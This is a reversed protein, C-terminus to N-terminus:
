SSSRSFVRRARSSSWFRASQELGVSSTGSVAIDIGAVFLRVPVDNVSGSGLSTSFNRSDKLLKGFFRWCSKTSRRTLTIALGSVNWFWTSATVARAVAAASSAFFRTSDMPTPASTSASLACDTSSAVATRPDKRARYPAANGLWSEAMKSSSMPSSTRMGSPASRKSAYRLTRASKKRAPTSNNQFQRMELRTREKGRFLYLDNIKVRRKQAPSWHSKGSERVQNPLFTKLQTLM